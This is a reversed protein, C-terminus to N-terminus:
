DCQGNDDGGGLKMSALEALAKYIRGNRYKAM